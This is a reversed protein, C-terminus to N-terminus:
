AMKRRRHLSFAMLAVGLLIIVNGSIVIPTLNSGTLALETPMVKSESLLIGSASLKFYISDTVKTGDAATSTFTVTHWGAELGAPIIATSSVSGGVANGRALTQPTSRVVVDYAATTQLGSANFTLATGAIYMGVSAAMDMSAAAERSQNITILGPTYTLSYNSASGSSFVAASPIVSYTGGETPVSSSNAYTTSGAGAYNYSMGSIADSNQLTGRTIEYGPTIGNGFDIVEDKATITIARPIVSVTVPINTAAGLYDVGESIEATVVCSGSGATVEIKGSAPDVNCATSAGAAYTVTGDFPGGSVAAVVILSDGYELTYSTNSFSLSRSLKNNITLTGATFTVAYNAASGVAFVPSSPTVSYTGVATPVTTSNAYTTGGSGVYNYTVGSIEESGVLTGNTVSFSPTFTHGVTTTPSSSTITLARKTVTLSVPLATASLHNTGQTISASLNCTGTGATITVVGSSANVACATSSGASYTVTGDGASPTATFTQTEGYSLSASTADLTLTRSVRRIELSGPAYSINYNATTDVNAPTEIIVNSPLVKYWGADTPRTTSPGYSTGNFGTYTFTAASYDLVQTGVLAQSIDLATPSFSTGYDVMPSGGTITIAKVTGNVVVQTTTSAALYNSGQAISASVSCSGTSATVRILGTSSDVTCATGASLSYTVAGDGAGKDPTAVVTQTAGYTLTYTTTSGFSLTRSAKGLTVTTQSSSIASYSSDAAKTATVLCTGASTSTLVGSSVACGTTSAGNTVSYSIAGTGSGGSTTLTLPTGFTGSTSTVNLASQSQTALTLTLTQLLVNDIKIDVTYPGSSAFTLSGIPLNFGFRDGVNKATGGSTWIIQSATTNNCTGTIGSGVANGSWMYIASSGCNAGNLDTVISASAGSNLVQGGTFILEIKSVPNTPNNISIWLPKTNTSGPQVMNVPDVSLTAANAATIPLVATMCGVTAAVFVTLFKKWSM